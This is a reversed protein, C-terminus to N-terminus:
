IQHRQMDTFFFSDAENISYENFRISYFIFHFITLLQILEIKYTIGNSKDIKGHSNAFYIWVHLIKFGDNRSSGLFFILVCMCEFDNWNRSCYVGFMHLCDIKRIVINKRLENRGNHLYNIPENAILGLAVSPMWSKIVCILIHLM